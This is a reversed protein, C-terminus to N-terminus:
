ASASWLRTSLNSNRRHCLIDVMVVNSTLTAVL